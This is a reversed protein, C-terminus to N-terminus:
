ATTRRRTGEQAARHREHERDMVRSMDQYLNEWDARWANETALPRGFPESRPAFSGLSGIADLALKALKTM